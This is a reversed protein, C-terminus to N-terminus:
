ARESQRTISVVTSNDVRGKVLVKNNDVGPEVLQRDRRAPKRSAATTAPGTPMHTLYGASIGQVLNDKLQDPALVDLAFYGRGGQDEDAQGV